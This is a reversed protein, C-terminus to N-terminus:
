SGISITDFLYAEMASRGKHTLTLIACRRDDPHSARRVLHQAELYCVWRLTSTMAAGVERALRAITPVVGDAEGVYLALMIDWATEDFMAKAFHDFRKRRGEIISRAWDILEAASPDHPNRVPVLMSLLHKAVEVQESSLSISM